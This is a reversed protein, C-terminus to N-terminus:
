VIVMEVERLSCIPCMITKGWYFRNGDLASDIVELTITTHCYTCTGKRTVPITM